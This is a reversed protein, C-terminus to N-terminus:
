QRQAASVVQKKAFELVTDKGNSSDEPSQRVEFDPRQGGKYASDEGTRILRATSVAIQLRSYPLDFRYIQEFSNLRGGTEEGILTGLKNASIIYALTAANSFTQPGILFYLPGHYRIPNKKTFRKDAPLVAMQGEQTAWMERGRGYLYQVPVWRLFSPLYSDKLYIKFRSSIKQEVRDLERYPEPTLYQMLSNVPKFAGGSNRRIDIILAKVPNLQIDRFTEKLFTEFQESHVRMSPFEILGIGDADRSFRYSRANSKREEIIIAQMRNAEIGQVEAPSENQQETRETELTKYTLRYPSQIKKLWLYVSLNQLVATIRHYESDGSFWSSFEHILRDMPQGNITLMRDGPNIPTDESYVTKVIIGRHAQSQELQFPFLLGNNRLYHGWEDPFRVGTNGDKFGAVFRAVIPFFERQTMPTNLQSQTEKLLAKVEQSPINAYIDPHVEEFVKLMSDLDAKLQEPTFSIFLEEETLPRHAHPMKQFYSWLSLLVPLSILLILIYITIRKM